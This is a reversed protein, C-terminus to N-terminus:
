RRRNRLTLALPASEMPAVLAHRAHVPEMQAHPSIASAAAAELVQRRNEEDIGDALRGLYGILVAVDGDDWHSLISELGDINTSRQREFVRRGDPKLAFRPPAAHDATTMRGVLADCILASLRKEVPPVPSDLAHALEALTM